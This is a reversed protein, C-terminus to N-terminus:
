SNNISSQQNFPKSVWYERDQFNKSSLLIKNDLKTNEMSPLTKVGFISLKKESYVDTKVLYIDNIDM